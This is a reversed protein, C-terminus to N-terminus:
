WKPKLYPLSYGFSYGREKIRKPKSSKKKKHPSVSMRSM